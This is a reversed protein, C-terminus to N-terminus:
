GRRTRRGPNQPSPAAREVQEMWAVVRLLAILMSLWILAIVAALMGSAM